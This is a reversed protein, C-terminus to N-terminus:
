GTSLLYEITIVEVDHRAPERGAGAVESGPADQLLMPMCDKGMREAQEPASILM